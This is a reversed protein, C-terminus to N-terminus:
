DLVYYFVESSNANSCSKALLHAAENQERKVHVFSASNFNKVLHKIDDVLIGCLVVRTTSDLRQVLSLCDTAFISKGIGKM